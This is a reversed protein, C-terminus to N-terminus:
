SEEHHIPYKNYKNCWCVYGFRNWWFHINRSYVRYRKQDGRSPSFFIHRQFYFIEMEELTKAPMSDVGLEKINRWGINSANEPFFFMYIDIYVNEMCKRWGYHDHQHFVNTKSPLVYFGFWFAFQGNYTNGSQIGPNQSLWGLYHDLILVFWLLNM